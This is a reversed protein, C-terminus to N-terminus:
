AAALRDFISQRIFETITTNQERVAKILRKWEAVTLWSQIYKIKHNM